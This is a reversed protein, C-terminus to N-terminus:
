NKGVKLHLFHQTVVTVATNDRVVVTRTLGNPDDTRSVVVTYTAGSNWIAVDDSVEVIYTLDTASKVETYTLTLYNLGSDTMIGPVPLGAVGNTHPDLHLAYKMVNTIGDHAPSGLDGSISSDAREAATFKENEWSTYPKPVVNLVISAGVLQLNASYAELGTGISLGATIFGSGDTAITGGFNNAAGATFLVYPGSALTGAAQDIFNITNGGFAIDGAAGNLVAITDSLFSAPGTSNLEFQLKAGSSLVLLPSATNAGNLTLTGLGTGPAIVGGSTVTIQHGAGPTIQGSGGLTANASV